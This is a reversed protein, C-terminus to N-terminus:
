WGLLSGVARVDPLLPAQQQLRAEDGPRYKGKQVLAAELGSEIAGRVDAEVDDGVMLCQDAPLHLSQVVEAFFAASPKGMVIAECDAGYELAKLFAGADLM